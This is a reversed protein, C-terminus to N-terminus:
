LALVDVVLDYDVDMMPSVSREHPVHAIDLLEYCWDPIDKLVVFDYAVSYREPSRGLLLAVMEPEEDVAVWNTRQYSELYGLDRLFKFAPINRYVFLSGQKMSIPVATDPRWLEPIQIIRKSISEITDHVYDGSWNPRPIIYYPISLCIWGDDRRIGFAELCSRNFRNVFSHMYDSSLGSYELTRLMAFMQGSYRKVRDELSNKMPITHFQDRIQLVGSIGPWDVLDGFSMRSSGVRSIPRKLYNWVDTEETDANTWLETKEEAIEGINRLQGILEEFFDSKRMASDWAKAGFADDGVAKGKQISSVVMALHIGHLLTCSSINGPVGLMGCNHTLVDEVIGEFLESGLEFEPNINCAQNYEHLLVGLNITTIGEYSDVVRIEVDSFFDALSATFNRIEHLKSTFSSYDYIFAIDSADLPVSQSAFRTRRNVSEVSDLLLNFIPQIFRSPYYVKPGRRYFVRPKLENYKWTWGMEVNGDVKMGTAHYLRELDLTTRLDEGDMFRSLYELNRRGGRGVDKQKYSPYIPNGLVLKRKSHSLSARLSRSVELCYPLNGSLPVYHTFQAETFISHYDLSVPHYTHIAALIEKQIGDRIVKACDQEDLFPANRLLMSVFGCQLPNLYDELLNALERLTFVHRNQSHRLEAPRNVSQVWLAAFRKFLRSGYVPLVQCRVMTLCAKRQDISMGPIHLGFVYLPNESTRLFLLWSSFSGM